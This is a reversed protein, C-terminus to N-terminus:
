LTVPNAAEVSVKGGYPGSKVAQMTRVSRYLGANKTQQIHIFCCVEPMWIYLPTNIFLRSMFCNFLRGTEVKAPRRWPESWSVIGSRKICEFSWLTQEEVCSHTVNARKYVNSSKLGKRELAGNNTEQTCGLIFENLVGDDKQVIKPRNSLWLAM